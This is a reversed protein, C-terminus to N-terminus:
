QRRVSWLGLAGPLEGDPAGSRPVVPNGIWVRRLRPRQAGELSILVAGEPEKCGVDESQLLVTKLEPIDAINTVVPMKHGEVNEYVVVPSRGAHELEFVLSTIDLATRVPARIRLLEDPFDREVMSLFGRLSQRGTDGAMDDM